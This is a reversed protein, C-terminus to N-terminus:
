PCAALARFLTNVSSSNRVVFFLESGDQTLTVDLEASNTNLVAVNRLAGFPASATTRTAYWLDHAGVGGTRDSALFLG